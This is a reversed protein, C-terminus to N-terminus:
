YELFGGWVIFEVVMKQKQVILIKGKKLLSFASAHNELVQFEGKRGPLSIALGKGQYIKKDKSLINIQIM